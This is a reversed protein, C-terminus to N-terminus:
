NGKIEAGAEVIAAFPILEMAEIRDHKTSFHLALAFDVHDESLLYLVAPSKRAANTPFYFVPFLAKLAGADVKRLAERQVAETKRAQALVENINGKELAQIVKGATVRVAQPIPDNKELPVNFEAQNMLVANLRAAALNRNFQTRPGSAQLNLLGRWDDIPYDNLFIGEFAKVSEAIALALAGSRRANGRLWMPQLDTPGNGVQRIWDGTVWDADDVKWENGTKAWRMVLFVDSWPHYFASLAADNQIEGLMALSEVFFHPWGLERLVEPWTEAGLKELIKKGAVSSKQDIAMAMDQRALHRLHLTETLLAEPASQAGTKASNAAAMTKPAAKVSESFFGSFAAVFAILALTKIHKLSM